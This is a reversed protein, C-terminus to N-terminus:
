QALSEYIKCLELYKEKTINQPRLNLDINLKEAIEEFEKFLIKMPKRVMKRKQNFFTYTIHELNKDKKLVCFYSKPTLTILSSWVKPKPYFYKPNIDTIKKTDMKWSAIISLRGYDKSNVKAIIRDAVEKQFVFIFKSYLKNLDKLKIFSTLIETSVNYPLNGFVKIAADFKFTNVCDLIDRNILIINKGFKKKLIESLEKDKEVVILNNPCKDLIKKTLNGTGPGIELITDDSNISGSDVIKNLIDENNLFNQGLSKKPKM